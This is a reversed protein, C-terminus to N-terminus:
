FGVKEGTEDEEVGEKQDVKMPEALESGLNQLESEPVLVTETIFTHSVTSGAVVSAKSFIYRGSKDLFYGVEGVYDILDVESVLNGRQAIDTTIFLQKAAKKVNERQWTTPMLTENIQVRLLEGDMRPNELMCDEYEDKKLQSIRDLKEESFGLEKMSALTVPFWAHRPKGVNEFDKDGKNLLALMNVAGPKEIRDTLEGQFKGNAVRKIKVITSM